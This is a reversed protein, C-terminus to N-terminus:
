ISLTMFILQTGFGGAAAATYELEIAGQNFEYIETQGCVLIVHTFVFIQPFPFGDTILDTAMRAVEDLAVLSGDVGVAGECIVLAGSNRPSGKSSRLGKSLQASNLTLDFKGTRGIKISM